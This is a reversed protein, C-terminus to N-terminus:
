SKLEEQRTLAGMMAEEIKKIHELKTLRTMEDLRIRQQIM